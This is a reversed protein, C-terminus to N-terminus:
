RRRPPDSRETAKVARRSLLMARPARDRLATAAAHHSVAAAADLKRRGPAREHWKAMKQHWEVLETPDDSTASRPYGPRCDYVEGQGCTHVAWARQSRKNRDLERQERARRDREQSAESPVFPQVKAVNAYLEAKRAAEQEEYQAIPIFEDIGGVCAIRMIAYHPIPRVATFGCRTCAVRIPPLKTALEAAITTGNREFFGDIDEHTLGSPPAKRLASLLLSVITEAEATRDKPKPARKPREAVPVEPLGLRRAVGELDSRHGLADLADLMTQATAADRAYRDLWRGLRRQEFADAVYLSALPEWAGPAATALALAMRDPYPDAEPSTIGMDRLLAADEDIPEGEAM